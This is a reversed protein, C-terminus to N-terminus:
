LRIYKMMQNWFLERDKKNFPSKKMARTLAVKRGMKYCFTDHDSLLADGFAICKDGDLIEVYTDRPNVGKGNPVEKGEPSVGTYIFKVGYHKDNIIVDIM